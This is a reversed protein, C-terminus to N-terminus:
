NVIGAAGIAIAVIEICCAFAGVTFARVLLDVRLVNLTRIRDMQFALRRYADATDASVAEIRHHIDQVSIGSGFERRRPVVVFVSATFTVAAAILATAFLPAPTATPSEGSLLTTVLASAVVLAGARARLSAVLTEQKDLNRVATDYM